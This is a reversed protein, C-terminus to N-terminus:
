PCGGWTEIVKLLDLIDVTGNHDADGTCIGTADHLEDLDLANVLGDGNM